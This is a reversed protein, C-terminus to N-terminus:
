QVRCGELRYTPASHYKGDASRYGATRSGSCGTGAISITYTSSFTHVAKVQDRITITGGSYSVTTRGPNNDTGCGRNYSHTRGIVGEIGQGGGGGCKGSYGSGEETLFVRGNALVRLTITESVGQRAFTITKGRIEEAAHVQASLLAVISAAAYVRNM